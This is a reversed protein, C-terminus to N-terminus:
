RGQAANLINAEAVGTPRCQGTFEPNTISLSASGNSDFQYRQGGILAGTTPNTQYNMALDYRVNVKVTTESASKPSLSVDITMDLNLPQKSLLSLLTTDTDFNGGQTQVMGCNIWQSPEYADVFLKMTGASRNQTLVKYRQERYSQLNRWAKDMSVNVVRSTQM